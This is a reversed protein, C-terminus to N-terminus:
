LIKMHIHINKLGLNSILCALYGNKEKFNIRLVALFFILYNEGVIM